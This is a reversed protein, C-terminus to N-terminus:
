KSINIVLRLGTAKRSVFPADHYRTTTKLDYLNELRYDGGRIVRDIGEDPGSPNKQSESEYLAFYDLCWEAVNGTMDYLGLANKEKGSKVEHASQLEDCSTWGVKTADDGGAFLTSNIVGHKGGRAAYEWQAETPLSFKLGTLTSLTDAFAKADEWSMIEVAKDEGLDVYHGELDLFAKWQKQTVESRCIYYNSLTVEHAISGLSDQDTFYDENKLDNGMSFSGGEVLVMDDLISALAESQHITLTQSNVSLGIREYSFDVTTEKPFFYYFACLLVAIISLSAIWLKRKNVHRRAPVVSKQFLHTDTGLAQAVATVLDNFKTDYDPYADIWHRQNLMVRSQGQLPTDDLRFPIITKQEEFAVNLEGNVWPSAAASKSFLVVVVKCEKISTEIIDGYQAGGPIDRPAIWCRIGNQELVHCIAQAAEKNQSSYSIFVDHNM